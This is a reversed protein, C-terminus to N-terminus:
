GGRAPQVRGLSMWLLQRLFRFAIPEWAPALGLPEKVAELALRYAQLLAFALFLLLVLRAMAGPDRVFAHKAHAQENLAKFGNNEEQWRAHAVERLDRASLSLDTTLVYFTKIQGRYPGKLHEERVRAIRLPYALGEWEFGSAAWLQYAVARQADVGEVYDIGERLRPYADFLGDADQRLTLTEEETKVVGHCGLEERCFRFFERTAYLADGVLLEVWGKGRQAVVRRLLRYSAPLEKGRKEWPELDELLELTGLTAVVSATLTGFSSGDVAGVRTRGRDPLALKGYGRGRLGQTLAGVVRRVSGEELTGMVRAVTSDSAVRPRPSGLLWRAAPQRLFRDLQRLSEVGLAAGTILGMCVLATPIQPAQRTDQIRQVQVSLGYEANCFRLFQAVSIEDNM